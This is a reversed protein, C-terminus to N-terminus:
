RISFVTHWTRSSMVVHKNIQLHFPEILLSTLFHPNMTASKEPDTSFAVKSVFLSILATDQESPQQSNSELTAYTPARAALLYDIECLMRYINYQHAYMTARTEDHM